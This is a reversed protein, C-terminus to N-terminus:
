LAPLFAGNRESSRRASRAGSWRGASTSLRSFTERWRLSRLTSRRNLNCIPKATLVPTKLHQFRPVLVCWSISRSSAALRPSLQLRCDFGLKSESRFRQQAYRQRFCVLGSRDPKGECIYHGERFSLGGRVQTHSIFRANTLMVIGLLHGFDCFGWSM